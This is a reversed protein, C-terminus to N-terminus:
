ELFDKDDEGEGLFGDVEKMILKKEGCKVKWWYRGKRDGNVKFGRKVEVEMVKKVWVDWNKESM